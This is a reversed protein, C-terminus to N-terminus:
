DNKPLKFLKEDIINNISSNFIYTIALNQYVDEVQWGVLDYNEKSFFININNNNENIHFFLYKDEVEDVNSSKIKNILFNKDLLFEFPTKKIPYRYYQKDNKIVLSSGNSVLIKNNRKEYECFIKKPYKIVCEGKEDKGNITQIFNFSINEIKNLKKLINEKNSANLNNQFLIFIISLFFFFKM